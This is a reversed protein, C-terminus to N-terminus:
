LKEGAGGGQCNQDLAKRVASFVKEPAIKNAKDALIHLLMFPDNSLASLPVAEKIEGGPVSQFGSWAQKDPVHHLCGAVAWDLRMQHEFLSELPMCGNEWVLWVRDKIRSIDPDSVDVGADKLSHIVEKQVVVPRLGDGTCDFEGHFLTEPGPQNLFPQKERTFWAALGSLFDILPSLASYKNNGRRGPGRMWLPPEFRCTSRGDGQVVTLAYVDGLSLVPDADGGTQEERGLVVDTDLLINQEQSIGEPDDEDSDLDAMDAEDEPAREEAEDEGLWERLEAPDMRFLMDRQVHQSINPGTKRKRGKDVSPTRDRVKGTSQAQKPM